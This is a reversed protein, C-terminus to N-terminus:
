IDKSYAGPEDIATALLPVVEMKVQTSSLARRYSGVNIWHTVLTWLEPEDLNQGIDGYGFGDRETFVELAGELQARFEAAQGTPVRFRAIAIM